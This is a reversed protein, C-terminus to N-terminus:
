DWKEWLPLGMLELMETDTIQVSGEADAKIRLGFARGNTCEVNWFAAQDDAIGQFFTKVVNSCPEGNERLYVSFFKRRESESMEVLVEHFPNLSSLPRSSEREGSDIPTRIQSTSSDEILTIPLLFLAAVIVLCGVCGNALTSSSARKRGPPDQHGSHIAQRDSNARRKPLPPDAGTPVYVKEKCYGCRGYTGARSQPISLSAGCHPCPMSIPM